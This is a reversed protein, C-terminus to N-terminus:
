AAAPCYTSGPDQGRRCLGTFRTLFRIGQSGTSSKIRSNMDREPKCIREKAISKGPDKSSTLSVKREKEAAAVTDAAGGRTGKDRLRAGRLFDSEVLRSSKM